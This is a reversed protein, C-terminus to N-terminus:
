DDGDHGSPPTLPAATPPPTPAPTAAPPPTFTPVATPAQFPTAVSDPHGQRSPMDYTGGCAATLLLAPVMLGALATSKM